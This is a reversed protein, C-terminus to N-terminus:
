YFIHHGIITGEIGEIVTRFYLCDNTINGGLAEEAARMCTNNVGQELRLAYRGSAVPSFQGSQYIVGAITNPFYSSKVRNLVVSAVALKGEYPEGDSECQIIAGLLYADGDQATYTYQVNSNEAEQRRIEELRKADERAKQAELQREYEEMQKIKNELDDVKNKANELDSSTQDINAQTQDILSSVSNQKQKMNSQLSLLNTKESQMTEKQEQLSAEAEAIENQVAIFNQLQQRDYKNIQSIYEARNLFDAFSSSSLFTALMSETGNEYMYRIRVKMDEYQDASRQRAKELEQQTESIKKGLTDLEQQKDSIQSELQNMSSVINTMQGNLNNLDSQLGTKKVNIDNVENQADKKQDNLDDLQNKANNIDDQTVDAYATTVTLSCALVAAAIIRRLPIKKM